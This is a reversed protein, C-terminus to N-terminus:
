QPRAKFTSNDVIHFRIEGTLSGDDELEALGGGSAEEM